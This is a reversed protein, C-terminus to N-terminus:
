KSQSQRGTEIGGADQGTAWGTMKSMKNHARWRWKEREKKPRWRVRTATWEATWENRALQRQIRTPDSVKDDFFGTPDTPAAAQTQKKRTFCRTIAM